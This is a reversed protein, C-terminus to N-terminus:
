AHIYRKVHLNYATQFQHRQALSLLVNKNGNTHCIVGKFFIHKAEFRLTWLAVLPGFQRILQPYHELYHYKPRIRHHPFVEQFVARHESIKFDLYSISDDTHFPVIVLEVIDNLDCLVQWMPENTSVSTGVLLPLFRLLSWNEHTNGRITRKTAYTLPM